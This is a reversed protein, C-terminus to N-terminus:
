MHLLCIDYVTLHVIWLSSVKCGGLSSLIHLCFNLRIGGKQIPRPIFSGRCKKVLTNHLWYITYYVRYLLRDVSCHLQTSFSNDVLRTRFVTQSPKFRKLMLPVHYMLIHICPIILHLQTEIGLRKALEKAQM